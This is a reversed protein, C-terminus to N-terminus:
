EKFYQPHNIFNFGYLHLFEIYQKHLRYIVRNTAMQTRLLQDQEIFLENIGIRGRRFKQIINKKISIIEDSIDLRQNFNKFSMELLEFRTKAQNTLFETYYSEYKETTRKNAKAM